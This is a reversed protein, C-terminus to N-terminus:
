PIIIYSWRYWEMSHWRCTARYEHCLTQKVHSSEMNNVRRLLLDSILLCHKPTIIQRCIKGVSRALPEIVLQPKTLTSSPHPQGHPIIDDCACRAVHSTAVKLAVWYWVTHPQQSWTYLQAHYYSTSTAVSTHASYFPMTLCVLSHWWQDSPISSTLTNPISSCTASTTWTGQWSM